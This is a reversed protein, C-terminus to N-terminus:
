ESEGLRSGTMRDSRYARQGDEDLSVSAKNRSNQVALWLEAMLIEDRSSHTEFFNDSLQEIARTLGVLPLTKSDTDLDTSANSDDNYPGLLPNKAVQTTGRHSTTQM